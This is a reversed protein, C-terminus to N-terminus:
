EDDGESDSDIDTCLKENYHPTGSSDVGDNDPDTSLYQNFDDDDSVSFFSDNDKDSDCVDGYGDQDFDEQEANEILACNDLIDVVGDNDSDTSNTDIVTVVVTISLPANSTDTVEITMGNLPVQVSQGEQLYGDVPDYYDQLSETIDLGLSPISGPTMDIEYPICPSWAYPLNSCRLGQILAGFKNYDDALNRRTDGSETPEIYNVFNRERTDFGTHGRFEITLTDFEFLSGNPAQAPINEKLPIEVMLKDGNNPPSAALDFIEITYVGDDTITLKSTPPIWGLFDKFHSM